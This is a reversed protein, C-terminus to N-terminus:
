HVCRTWVVHPSGDSNVDWTGACPNFYQYHVCGDSFTRWVKVSCKDVQESRVSFNGPHPNRCSGGQVRILRARYPQDEGFEPTPEYSILKLGTAAAPSSQLEPQQLSSNAARDHHEEAIHPHAGFMWHGDGRNRAADWRVIQVCGDSKFYNITVKTLEFTDEKSAKLDAPESTHFANEQYEKMQAGPVLVKGEVTTAVWYIGATALTVIMLIALCVIAWKPLPIDLKIGFAEIITRSTEDSSLPIQAPVSTVSAM